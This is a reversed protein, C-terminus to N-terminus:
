VWRKLADGLGMGCLTESIGNWVSHETESNPKPQDCGAALTTQHGGRKSLNEEESELITDQFQLHVSHDTKDINVVKLDALTYYVHVLVIEHKLKSSSKEATAIVWVLHTLLEFCLFSFSCLMLQHCHSMM